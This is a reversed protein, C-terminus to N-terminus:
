RNIVLADYSDHKCNISQRNDISVEVPLYKFQEIKKAHRKLMTFLIFECIVKYFYKSIM